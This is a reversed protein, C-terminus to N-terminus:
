SISNLFQTVEECNWDETLNLRRLGNRLGRLLSRQLDDNQALRDLFAEWTFQKQERLLLFLGLEARFLVLAGVGETEEDSYLRIARLNQEQEPDPEREPWFDVILPCFRLVSHKVAARAAQRVGADNGMFLLFEEYEIRESERILEFLARQVAWTVWEGVFRLQEADLISICRNSAIIQDKLPKERENIRQM